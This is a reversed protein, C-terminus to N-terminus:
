AEYIEEWIIRWDKGEEIDYLIYYVANEIVEEDSERQFGYKRRIGNIFRELSEGRLSSIAERIEKEIEERRRKEEERQLKERQAEKEEEVREEFSPADKPLRINVEGRVLAIFAGTPNKVWEKKKGSSLMFYDFQEALRKIKPREEEPFGSLFNKLWEEQFYSNSPLCIKNIENHESVVRGSPSNQTLETDRARKERWKERLYSLYGPPLSESFEQIAGECYSFSEIKSKSRLVSSIIAAEIVDPLIDKVSEYFEEDGAEWLNGTYKEYLSIVYKKHDFIEDDDDDDLKKRINNNSSSSDNSEDDNNIYNKNIYPTNQTVGTNKVPTVGTNKVPTVGTNKVPALVGTSVGTRVGTPDEKTIIKKTQPHIEIGAKKRALLVEKPPLATYIPGLPHNPCPDILVISKKEILGKIAKRITKDSRIGTLKMLRSSGFHQPKNGKIVTERYIVSYVKAEMATHTADLNVYEEQAGRQKTRRPQQKEEILSENDIGAEINLPIRENTEVLNNQKLPFRLLNPTGKFYIEWLADEKSSDEKPEFEKVSEPTLGEIKITEVPKKKRPM